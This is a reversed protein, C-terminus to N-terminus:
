DRRGGLADVFLNVPVTLAVMAGLPALVPWLFGSEAATTGLFSITAMLYLATITALGLDALVPRLLVPVVERVLAVSTRDGAVRAQEAFGTSLLPEAAAQYYRTAFPLNLVVVVPIAAVLSSGTTRFAILAVVVMPVILLVDLGFRVLAVARGGVAMWMGVALALAQSLVVALAATLVLAQGGALLQPAVPRGLYDYGLGMPGGTAYAFASSSSGDGVSDAAFPGLLTAAVVLTVVASRIRLSRRM